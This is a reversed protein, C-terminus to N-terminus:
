HQNLQLTKDNIWKAKRNKSFVADVQELATAVSAALAQLAHEVVEWPHRQVITKCSASKFNFIRFTFEVRLWLGEEWALVPWSLCCSRSCYFFWTNKNHLLTKSWLGSNCQLFPPALYFLICICNAGSLFLFFTLTDGLLTAFIGLAGTWRTCGLLFRARKWAHCPKVWSYKEMPIGVCHHHKVHKM